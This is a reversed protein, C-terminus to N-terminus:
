FIQDLTRERLGALILAQIREFEGHVKCHRGGERHPCRYNHDMCESLLLNGDIANMVDFLTIAAMDKAVRYGGGAGRYSRVLAGKELKKLIKYAFPVPVQERASIDQVTKKDGDALERLIRVAYDSERTIFM